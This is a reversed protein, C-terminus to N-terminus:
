SEAPTPFMYTHAHQGHVDQCAFSPVVLESWATYDQATWAQHGQHRNSNNVGPQLRQM